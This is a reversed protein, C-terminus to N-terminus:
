LALQDLLANSFADDQKQKQAPQQQAVAHQQQQVNVNAVPINNIQTNLKNAEEQKLENEIAALEDEIESSNVGLQAQQEFMQDIQKQDADMDQLEGLTEELKDFDTTAKLVQAAKSLVETSNMNELGHELQMRVKLFVQKQNEARNIYQELQQIEQLKFTAQKKKGNRVLEKVTGRLTDIRETYKDIKKEFNDEQLKIQYQLREFEMQYNAAQNAPQQAPQPKPAEKQPKESGGFLKKFM